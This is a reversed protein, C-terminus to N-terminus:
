VPVGNTSVASAINATPAHSAKIGMVRKATPVGCYGSLDVVKITSPNSRAVDVLLVTVDDTKHCFVVVVLRVVGGALLISVGGHVLTNVTVGFVVVIQDMHRERVAVVVLGVGRSCLSVDFLRNSGDVHFHVVRPRSFFLVGM